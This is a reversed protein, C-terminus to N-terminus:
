SMEIKKVNVTVENVNLNLYIFLIINYGL